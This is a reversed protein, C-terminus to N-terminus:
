TRWRPSRRCSTSASSCSASTRAACADGARTASLTSLDRGGVLVHGADPDELAGALHLMTSKGCGSPGMVAVLEGPEVRLTVDTLARVETLGAGYRKVVARLELAAPTSTSTPSTLWRHRREHHATTTRPRAPRAGRLHRALPPRGRRARRLADAVLASAALDDATRAHRAPAGPPAPHPRHAPPHDGRARPRRGDEIAFCCRSCSSTAPRRRTSPRRHVVLRRAGRPGRRHDRLAEARRGRRQTM